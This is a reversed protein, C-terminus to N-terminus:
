NYISKLKDIISKITKADKSYFNKFYFLIVTNNVEDVRAILLHKKKYADGKFYYPTSTKFLGTISEWKNQPRFSLWYTPLSKAFSRNVAVRIKHSIVEKNNKSLELEFHKTGLYKGINIEKFQNTIPTPYTAKM